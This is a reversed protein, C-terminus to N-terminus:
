ELGSSGERRWRCSDVTAEYGAGRLGQEIREHEAADGEVLSLSLCVDLDGTGVHRPRGFGPYLVLLAPALGGILVAHQAAFGISRLLHAAEGLIAAAVGPDYESRHSGDTALCPTGSSNPRM